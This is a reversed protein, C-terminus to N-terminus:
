VFIADLTSFMLKVNCAHQHFIIKKKCNLIRKPFKIQAPENSSKNFENFLTTNHLGKHEGFARM